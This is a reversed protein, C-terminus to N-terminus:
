AENEIFQQQVLKAYLEHTQLLETHTGQGTVAGNELVVISDANIITSLRHAIVLTTRSKMLVQLAAQVLKESASDLHATAEDLLLIDPDRLLARAIALRQRQGGSLKVGREGVETELGDPLSDMFESLNAQELAEKLKSDNVQELGYTLNHRISGAMMPSEQSVYAIRKRWNDLTMSAIDETGYEIRGDTPQYFREILSFLTTKGTGSPGVIATMGRPAARFSLSHLIPRDPSYSFSVNEFVLAQKNMSVVNSSVKNGAIADSDEEPKEDMLEIIRESAGMAKQFQTFFSAMQTFPMVIQFMYLIIAVLEGTSISGQAVRVGGYGILMVLILLMVTMMLPTVISLIKAEQLGFRFLSSIRTKGQNYEEKEALSAKVLRIEALVRGLDGQFHATEDQMAKSIKFMKSGLPWLVLLSIPVAVLMLLTMRWDIYFLIVVGGIISVIGGLFSIVHGVIFDKIVNTDNTVRSMTEGSTNRDFFPVPLRLVHGWVEKRLGSIMYQGVYYMTYVSFGSMATQLVFVSGLLVITMTELASNSVQEVLTKTLLPIFLSLITEGLGLIVAVAVLWKAPMHKGILKIFPKVDM